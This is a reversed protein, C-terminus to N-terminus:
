DHIQLTPFLRVPTLHIIKEKSLIYLPKILLEFMQSAYSFTNTSRNSLNESFLPNRHTVSSVIVHHLPLKRKFLNGTKTEWLALVSCIIIFKSLM